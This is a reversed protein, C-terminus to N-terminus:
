KSNYLDREELPSAAGEGEVKLRRRASFMSGKAELVPAFVQLGAPTELMNGYIAEFGGRISYTEHWFGVGGPNKTFDKWWQLHPLARTWQELSGYDRWYQRMGIHPPLFGYYIDEHLLLGDPKAAVSKAIRPGLKMLTLMGRLSHVRMGLYIVILEPYKSLDVAQRSHTLM